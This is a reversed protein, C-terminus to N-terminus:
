IFLFPDQGMWTDLAAEAGLLNTEEDDSTQMETLGTGGEGATKSATRGWFRSQYDNEDVTSVVELPPRDELIKALEPYDESAMGAFHVHSATRFRGM